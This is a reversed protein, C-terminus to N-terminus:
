LGFSKRLKSTDFVTEQGNQTNANQSDKATKIQAQLEDNAERITDVDWTGTAEIYPQVYSNYQEALGVAGEGIKGISNTYESLSNLKSGINGISATLSQLNKAGGQIRTQGASTRLNGDKILQIGKGGSAALSITNSNLAEGAKIEANGTPIDTSGQTTIKATQGGLEAGKQINEQLETIGESIKETSQSILDSINNVSNEVIQNQEEITAQIDQINSVFNNIADAAAGITALAEERKKPDKLDEKAQDIIDLQKQIENKVDAIDGNSGLKEILAIANSINETNSTIDSVFKEVAAEIEQSKKDAAQENKNIADSNKNVEKNAETVQNNSFSIIGMIGDLINKLSNAKQESSAESLNSADSIAKNFWAINDYSSTNKNTAASANSSNSNVQEVQKLLNNLDANSFPAM